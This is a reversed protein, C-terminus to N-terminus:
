VEPVLNAKGVLDFPISRDEDGERVVVSGERCDVLRGTWGRRGDIPERTRLRVTCGTFRVFHDERLLPRDLGPSSVELVYSEPIPDEVDLIASVQRSARECDAVSIGADCDIFVRLASRGGSTGLEVGVLEYGLEAISAQLLDCIREERSSMMAAAEGRWNLDDVFLFHAFRGSEECAASGAAGNSQQPAGGQSVRACM